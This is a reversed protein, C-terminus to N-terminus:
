GHRMEVVNGGPAKGLLFGAWAEMMPRRQETYTSRQYARETDDGFVHALALEAHERSFGQEGAWTRCTARLGHPTAPRHSHADLYGPGSAKLDAEHLSLMAKRITMDSMQGGRPAPFVLDTGEMRPLSKLLAIAAEPLPVNHDGKNKIKLREAPITWVAGEVESWTMGRVDGSRTATLALFELARAGMGERDRLADWWRPADGVRLSPQRQKKVGKLVASVKGKIWDTDAPNEGTIHREGAAWRLVAAMRGRVRAALDPSREVVSELAKWIQRDDLQDVYENQLPEVAYVSNLWAQRYKESTFEHPNADAWSEVAQKFTPKLAEANSKAKLARQEKIPDKGEDLLRVAERARDRAEAVGYTPYSGLGMSRRKYKGNVEVSYRYIWSKGGGPTLQLQLGPVGGVARFVPLLRNGKAEMEEHPYELRKVELAGMEKVRKPM